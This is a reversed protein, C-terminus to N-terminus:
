CLIQFIIILILKGFMGLGILVQNQLQKNQEKISM